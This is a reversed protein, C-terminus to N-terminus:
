LKRKKLAAQKGCSYAFMMGRFEEAQKITEINSSLQVLKAYEKFLDKRCNNPGYLIKSIKDIKIRKYDKGTLIFLLTNIM